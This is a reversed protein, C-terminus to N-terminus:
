KVINEINMESAIPRSSQTVTRGAIIWAVKERGVEKITGIENVPCGLVQLPGRVLECYLVFAWIWPLPLREKTKV